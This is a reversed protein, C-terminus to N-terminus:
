TDPTEEEVPPQLSEAVLKYKKGQRVAAVLKAQTQALKRSLDSIQALYANEVDDYAMTDPFDSAELQPETDNM